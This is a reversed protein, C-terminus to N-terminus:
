PRRLDEAEAVRDRWADSQACRILGAALDVNSHSGYRRKLRGIGVAAIAGLAADAVTAGFREGARDDDRDPGSIFSPRAITWALESGRLREEVRARVKLYAGAAGPGAGMSSLYVVRPASGCAQAADFLLVSLDHDVAEYSEAAADKGARAAAKGRARTTGLLAFVGDPKLQKLTEAMADARWPTSDVEAGWQGFLTRWHDLRSSDPRVHAVTRVGSGALQRVVERGTYGTAGAIFATKM